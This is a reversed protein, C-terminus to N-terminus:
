HSLMRWHACHIGTLHRAIQGWVFLQEDKGSHSRRLKLGSLIKHAPSSLNQEVPFTKPSRCLARSQEASQRSNPLNMNRAAQCGARAEQPFEQPTSPSSATTVATCTSDLGLMYQVVDRPSLPVDAKSESASTALCTKECQVGLNQSRRQTGPDPSPSRSSDASEPNGRAPATPPRAARGPNPPRTGPNHHRYYKVPQRTFRHHPPTRLDLDPEGVPEVQSDISSGRVALVSCNFSFCACAM